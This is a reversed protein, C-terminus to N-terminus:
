ESCVREGFECYCVSYNTGVCNEVPMVDGHKFVVSNITCNKRDLEVCHGGGCKNPCCRGNPSFDCDLCENVECDKSDQTVKPCAPHFKAPFLPNVDVAVEPYDENNKPTTCTSGGCGNSCCIQNSFECDLCEDKGM